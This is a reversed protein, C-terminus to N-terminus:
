TRAEASVTGDNNVLAPPPTPRAEASIVGGENALRPAAPVTGAIITLRQALSGFM